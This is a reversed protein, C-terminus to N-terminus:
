KTVKKKSAIRIMYIIFCLFAFLILIRKHLSKYNEIECETYRKDLSLMDWNPSYGFRNYCPSDLFREVNLNVNSYKGYYWIYVLPAVVLITAFLVVIIPKIRIKLEPLNLYSFSVILLIPIIAYFLFETLDYTETLNGNNIPWFKDNPYYYENDWSILLITLHIAFWLLYTGKLKNNKLLEKM